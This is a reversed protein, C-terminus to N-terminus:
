DNKRWFSKLICSSMTYDWLWQNSERAYMVLCLTGCCNGPLEQNTCLRSVMLLYPPSSSYFNYVVCPSSNWPFSCSILSKPKKKVNPLPHHLSIMLKLSHKELGTNHNLKELESKSNSEPNRKKGLKGIKLKAKNDTM